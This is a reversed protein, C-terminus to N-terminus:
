ESWTPEFYYWFVGTRLQVYLMPFRDRLSRVAKRLTDGSVPEDLEVSMRFTSNWHRQSTAPYIKAANDLKYWFNDKPNPM